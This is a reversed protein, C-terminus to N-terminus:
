EKSLNIVADLLSDQWWTVLMYIAAVTQAREGTPESMALNKSASRTPNIPYSWSM